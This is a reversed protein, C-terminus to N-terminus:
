MARFIERLAKEQKDAEFWFGGLVLLYPAILLLLSMWIAAEGIALGLILAAYWISLFAIVFIFPRMTVTIRSIAGGKSRAGCRPCSHIAIALCAAFRSGDGSVEGELTQRQRQKALRLSVM